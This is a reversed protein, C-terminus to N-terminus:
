KRPMAAERDVMMQMMQEMLAMRREMQAHMGMMPGMGPRGAAPPTATGGQAGPAMMGMGGPGMGGPGMGGSGMGGSGMGGSGMGGPGMGGMGPTGAAGGRMQGMMATGSQMLKMHEDMLAAREAPTRAAQMKQRMEQMSQMQRNFAEPTPAASTAVAAQAGSDPHHAAHEDAPKATQSVACGSVFITALLGTTIHLRMINEKSQDVCCAGWRSRAAHDLEILSAFDAAGVAAPARDHPTEDLGWGTM